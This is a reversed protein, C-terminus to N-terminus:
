WYAQASVFPVNGDPGTWLEAQATGARRGSLVIPETDLLPRLARFSFRRPPVAGNMEAALHLLLTVQLPGHVVLGSYGEVGTVYPRDYHIRHGNFTLASYRFLLVPSSEVTRTLDPVRKDASEAPCEASTENGLRRPAPPERYVLNQEERVAEGRETM